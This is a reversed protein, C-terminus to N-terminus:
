TIKLFNINVCNWLLILYQENFVCTKTDKPLKIYIYSKNEITKFFFGPAINIKSFKYKCLKVFPNLITWLICTKTFAIKV